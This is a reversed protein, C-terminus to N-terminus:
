KKADSIFVNENDLNEVVEELVGRNIDGLPTYNEVCYVVGLTLSDRSVKSLLRWAPTRALTRGSRRTVLGHACKLTWFLHLGEVNGDRPGSLIEPNDIARLSRLWHPYTDESRLTVIVQFTRKGRESISTSPFDRKFNCALCHHVGFQRKKTWRLIPWSPSSM